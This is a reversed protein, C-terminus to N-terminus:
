NDPKAQDLEGYLRIYERLQKQLETKEQQLITIQSRLQDAESRTKTAEQTDDVPSAIGIIALIIFGFFFLCFLIRQSVKRFQPVSATSRSSATNELFKQLSFNSGSRIKRASSKLNSHSHHSHHHSGSHHSSSHHSHHHSGSHHSSSHHSHHHSGSHHSHSHHSHHHSGSHHSHHSSQSEGTTNENECSTTNIEINNDTM